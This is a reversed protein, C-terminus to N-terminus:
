VKAAPKLMSLAASLLGGSDAMQGNPTLKDVITPLLSSLQSSAQEPSIGVRAALDKVQQSGLVHTIQDASIPLNQGTSVWSSVVDSLGKQHFQQVMGSLGGPQNQIMELVSHALPNQSSGLFGTLAKGALDDLLGM